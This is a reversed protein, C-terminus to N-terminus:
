TNKIRTRPNENRSEQKQANGPYNIGLNENKSEREQDNNKPIEQINLKKNRSIRKLSKNKSEQEPHKIRTGPM